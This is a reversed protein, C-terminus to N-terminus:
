KQLSSNYFAFLRRLDEEKRLRLNQSGTFQDVEKQKEPFIRAALENGKGLKIMGKGPTYAYYVVSNDFKRIITGSGYPKQDMYSIQVFKLLQVAGTDLVQYYNKDTQKDVAPYGSRFTAPVGNTNCGTFQVYELPSTAELEPGNDVRYYLVNNQLDLKAQLNNYMKGKAVKIVAACYQDNFFPSGDMDFANGQAKIPSGNLDSLTKNNEFLMNNVVQGITLVPASLLVAIILHKM